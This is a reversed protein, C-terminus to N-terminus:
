WFVFEDPGYVGSSKKQKTIISHSSAVRRQIILQRRAFQLREFVFVLFTIAYGIVLVAFAGTLNKLSLQPTKLQNKRAVQSLCHHPM